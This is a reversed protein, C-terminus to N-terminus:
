TVNFVKLVGKAFAILEDTSANQKMRNALDSIVQVNGPIYGKSSDIRDLSANTPQRGQGRVSTLECGLFPCHTPIDFDNETLTHELGLLDARQKSSALMIKKPNRVAYKEIINRVKDPNKKNWRLQNQKIKEKNQQYYEKSYKSM